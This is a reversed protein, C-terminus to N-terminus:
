KTNGKRYLLLWYLAPFTLSLVAIRTMIQTGLLGVPPPVIDNNVFVGGFITVVTAIGVAIFFRDRLVRNDPHARLLRWLGMVVLWNTPFAVLIVLWALVIPIATM